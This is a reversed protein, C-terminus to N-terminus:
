IWPSMERINAISARGIEAMEPSGALNAQLTLPIHFWSLSIHKLYGYGYGYNMYLRYMM